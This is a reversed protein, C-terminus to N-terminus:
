QLELVVKARLINKNWMKIVKCDPGLAMIRAFSHFLHKNEDNEFARWLGDKNSPNTSARTFLGILLTYIHKHAHSLSPPLLSCMNSHAKVHPSPRPPSSIQVHCAQQGEM